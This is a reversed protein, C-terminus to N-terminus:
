RTINGDNYTAVADHVGFRLTTLTVFVRKPIRSWIVNNFSENANQTQGHLCKELLKPNALDRFIPKIVDMIAPALHSHKEHDYLVGEEKAKLYKCWSIDCLMHYQTQNNSLYHFFEAWVAKKMKELDNVHRRIALGYYCQIEDIMKDTM